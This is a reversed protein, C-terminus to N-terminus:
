SNSGGAFGPRNLEWEIRSQLEVELAENQRHAAELLLQISADDRQLIKQQLRLNTNRITAFSLVDEDLRTRRISDAAVTRRLWQTWERVREPSNLMESLILKHPGYPDSDETFGIQYLRIAGGFVSLRKGFRETLLWTFEAKLIVVRALGITARALSTADIELSTADESCESVSLVIVPLKRNADVLYEVLGSLADRAPPHPKFIQNRTPNPHRIWGARNRFLWM